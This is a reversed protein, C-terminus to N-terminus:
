RCDAVYICCHSVPPETNFLTLYSIVHLFRITPPPPHQFATNCYMCLTVHAFLAIIFCHLLLCLYDQLYYISQLLFLPHNVVLDTRLTARTARVLSNTPCIKHLTLVLTGSVPAENIAWQPHYGRDQKISFDVILAKTKNINLLLNNDWCWNELIKIEELYAKEDKGSILGLVVTNDAFKVMTTSNSTALCDYTYLSYRLPSLVCSQPAGNSLTLSSLVHKGVRVVQPRKTLLNSIFQCQSPNLGLDELTKTLKSPIISNFASNHMIRTWMIVRGPKWIFWIQQPM